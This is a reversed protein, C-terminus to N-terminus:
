ITSSYGNEVMYIAPEQCYACKVTGNDVPNVPKLIPLEFGSYVADDLAEEVDKQCAYIQEM